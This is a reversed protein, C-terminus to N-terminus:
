QNEPLAANVNSDVRAESKSRFYGDTCFILVNATNDIELELKSIDLLDDIDLFVKVDVLMEVLRQKVIRMQDQLTTPAPRASLPWIVRDPCRM